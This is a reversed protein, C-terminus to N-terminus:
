KDMSAMMDNLRNNAVDLHRAMAAIHNPLMADGRANGGAVVYLPNFEDIYAFRKLAEDVNEAGGRAVVSEDVAILARLVNGAVKAVGKVYYINNDADMHGIDTNNLIGLAYDTMAACYKLINFVDDSKVNYIGADRSKTGVSNAWDQWGKIGAKYKGECDYVFLFGWVNDAYTFYRSTADSLRSDITDREGVRGATKAVIDSAPRTAYIVGRQYATKNDIIKQEMLIDNPLWGFLSSLETELADTVGHALIQAKQREDATNDVKAPAYSQPSVNSILGVCAVYLVYALIIILIPYKFSKASLTM